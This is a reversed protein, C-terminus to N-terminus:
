SASVAARAFATSPAILVYCKLGHSIQELGEYLHRHRLGGIEISEGLDSMYACFAVEPAYAPYDGLHRGTPTYISWYRMKLM